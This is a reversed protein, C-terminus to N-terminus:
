HYLIRSKIPNDLTRNGGRESEVLFGRSEQLKLM